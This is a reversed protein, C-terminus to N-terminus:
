FALSLPFDALSARSPKTRALATSRVATRRFGVVLTKLSMTGGSVGTVPSLELPDCFVTNETEVVARPSRTV